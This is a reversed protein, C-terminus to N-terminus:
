GAVNTKETSHPEPETSEDDREGSADERALM